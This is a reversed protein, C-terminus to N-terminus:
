HSCEEDPCANGVCSGWSFRDRPPGRRSIGSVVAIPVALLLPCPTAVVLVALARIPDGSVAWALASLGLALPVFWGAWRDALRISPSRSERAEQVLRIIGAYTSHQADATALIEFADAANVVGSSVLDGNTREVPMPEGTLASEDILASPSIVVGDVPIVEGSKILVRDGRGVSNIDVEEVKHDSIRHAFRPVRGLLNTLEREARGAAFEELFRGTALMLGIIAATLYEGLALAGSVALVAIIDVGPRRLRIKVIIDRILPLMPVVAVATFVVNAATEYDLVALLGGLGMGVATGILLWRTFRETSM